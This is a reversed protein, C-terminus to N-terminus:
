AQYQGHPFTNPLLNEIFSKPLRFNVTTDDTPQLLFEEVLEAMKASMNKEGPKIEVTKGFQLINTDNEGLNSKPLFILDPREPIRMPFIPEVGIEVLQTDDGTKKVRSSIFFASHIPDMKSFGMSYLDRFIQALRRSRDVICMALVDNPGMGNERIRDLIIRTENPIRSNELNYNKALIANAFLEYCRAFIRQESNLFSFASIFKSPISLSCTFSNGTEEKNHEWLWYIGRDDLAKELESMALWATKALPDDGKKVDRFVGCARIAPIISNEKEPLDPFTSLFRFKNRQGEYMWVEIELVDHRLGMIFHPLKAFLRHCSKRLDKSHVRAYDENTFFNGLMKADANEIIPFGKEQLIESYTLKMIESEIDRFALLKKEPFDCNYLFNLSMSPFNVVVQHELGEIYVPDTKRPIYPMFLRQNGLEEKKPEVLEVPFSFPLDMGLETFRHMLHNAMYMLSYAFVEEMHYEKRRPIPFFLFNTM